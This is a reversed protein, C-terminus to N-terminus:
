KWCTPFISTGHNFPVGQFTSTPPTCHRVVTAEATGTAALGGGTITLAVVAGMILTRM